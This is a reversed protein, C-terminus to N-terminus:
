AAPQRPELRLDIDISGTPDVTVFGLSPATVGYDAFTVPITGVVRAGDGDLGATLKATIAHSTGNLTLTGTVSVQHPTTMDLTDGPATVPADLTFTATAYLATDIAATRFYKVRASEDTRISAVDVTIQAATISNQATTVTGTVDSTRGTVTIETGNLVEDVRYGAESFDAVNWATPLQTPDLTSPRLDAATLAPAPHAPAAILDRYIVPGLTAAAIGGATLVAAAGVGLRLFLRRRRRTAQATDNPATSDSSLNSTTRM